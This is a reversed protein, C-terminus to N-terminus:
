KCPGYVGIAALKKFTNQGLVKVVEEKLMCGSQRLIEDVENIKTAEQASISNFVEKLKSSNEKRFLNGNFYLKNQKEINEFDIFQCEEALRFLDDSDSKSLKHIDGLYEIAEKEYKPSESVMEALDISANEAKTPSKGDYIDTTHKLVSDTTLGLINVEKSSLDILRYEKLTSLIAPLELETTIGLGKAIAKVTDLPLTSEEDSALGSMMKGCKGAAYVKEFDTLGDVRQLKNAHHIIWAGKTRSDL